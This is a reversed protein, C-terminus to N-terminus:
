DYALSASLDRHPRAQAPRASGWSEVVQSEHAGAAFRIPPEQLAALQVIANALKPLTAVKSGM